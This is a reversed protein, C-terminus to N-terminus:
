GHFCFFELALKGVHHRSNSCVQLELFLAILTVSLSLLGGSFMDTRGEEKFPIAGSFGTNLSM